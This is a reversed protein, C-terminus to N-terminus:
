IMFYNINLPRNYIIIGNSLKSTTGLDNIVDVDLKLNEFYLYSEFTSPVNQLSATM